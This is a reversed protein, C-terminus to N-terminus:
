YYFPSKELVRKYCMTFFDNFKQTTLESRTARLYFQFNNILNPM